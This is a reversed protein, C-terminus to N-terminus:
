TTYLGLSPCYGALRSIPACRSSMAPGLSSKNSISLTWNPYANWDDSHAITIVNPITLRAFELTGYHAEPQEGRRSIQLGTSWDSSLRQGFTDRLLRLQNAECKPQGPRARSGGFFNRPWGRRTELCRSTTMLGVIIALRSVMENIEAIDQWTMFNTRDDM